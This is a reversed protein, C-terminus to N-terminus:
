LLSAGEMSRPVTVGLYHLVTPALDIIRAADHLAARNMFLIGPVSEPDVIHDGSWRRMNDEMVSTAFGGVASQWSVRFGRNFNVLLDPSNEVFAGSYLEERRSVSRIAARQTHADPFDALGTQIARRVREAESGEELIGISERGKFNLYIGGLGVAYAYTKSWDVAAFGDGLDEGPKRNDKLALLGNQWLWTNTDFTRRFTGFGHDSLVILLTNEDTKDLVVSLLADCRRYHEEIRTALEPSLDPEFGPHERDRFRWLMHQVRDPTDFLTFFFGESFRDLEFRMTREREGLVLECQQLYAAEDLRGNNLGNHDEAMGLTSFLGVKDALERAYDAPASVPFMPASPDFNVASLYFELHPELQRVYFRAIGTVSQLMSFKFKFRAWESWSKETVEIKAPSGGIHIVLKCAAKDVQVRVECSTDALPSAKTNRPGIVRTAIEDGSDLFILQENEQAVATTDQTYFTGKSQSGRVDPVGVGALMRGQLTEPPFTCPCRLVTSPIGAASLTQWLPVGSRRNVIRPQALLNKPREFLTLAVDPLYTKPDRCIFDFIGH